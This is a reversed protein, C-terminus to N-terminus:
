IKFKGTAKKLAQWYNMNDIDANTVIDIEDIVVGDDTVIIKGISDNARIPAQISDNIKIDFTPTDKEGRTRLDYFSRSAYVPNQAVFAKKINVTDIPKSGDIILKNVYNDFTHNMLAASESFRTKSDAAGIIVAIPKLNSREASVVICSGAENTFGTKGGKSGQFFRSHKNTNTLGTVRGSPHTLDYMWINEYNGYFPSRMLHAYVKAVDEACSYQGAAPLGTCNVYNTHTMGLQTALENMKEVFATESGYLHEAMAVCSDNASAIIISKILDEASYVSDFDLFAQSGGMGSATPSVNIEDSLKLTGAELADYIVALTTAKVMSAIPLKQTPNKTFLVKGSNAEMLLAAKATIAPQASTSALVTAKDPCKGHPCMALVGVVAVLLTSKLIKKM